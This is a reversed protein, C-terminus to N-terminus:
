KKNWLQPDLNEKLENALRALQSQKDESNIEQNELRMTHSASKLMAKAAIEARHDLIADLSQFGDGPVIAYVVKCNMAIAIENLADLTITGYVERQEHRVVGAQDIELRDALQQTTMGLAGRIAKAWGMPPKKENSLKRWLELKKDLIQRQKKLAEKKLRM